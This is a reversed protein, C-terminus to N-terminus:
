MRQRSFVLITANINVNADIDVNVNVNIRIKVKDATGGVRGCESEWNWSRQKWISELPRM